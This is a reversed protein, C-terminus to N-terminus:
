DADAVDVHARLSFHGARRPRVRQRVRRRLNTELRETCLTLIVSEKGLTVTIAGRGQEAAPDYRLSWDYVKGPTLVPGAAAQLRTGRATTLGPQFYHGIRTPGGVHVGLFSGAQTPPRDKSASDFWGLFVDSDPAGSQLV